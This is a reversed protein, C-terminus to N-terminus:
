VSAVFHRACKIWCKRLVSPQRWFKALRDNLSEVFVLFEVFGSASANCWKATGKGTDVSFPFLGNLLVNPATAQSDLGVFKVFKLRVANTTAGVKQFADMQDDVKTFCRAVKVMVIEFIGFLLLM